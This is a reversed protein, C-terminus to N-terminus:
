FAAWRAVLRAGRADRDGAACAVPAHAAPAESAGLRPRGLRARVEVAGHHLARRWVTRLKQRVDLGVPSGVLRRVESLFTRLLDVDVVDLDSFPWSGAEAELLVEEVVVRVDRRGGGGEEQWACQVLLM